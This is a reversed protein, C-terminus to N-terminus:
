SPAVAGVEGAVNKFNVFAKFLGRGMESIVPSRDEL